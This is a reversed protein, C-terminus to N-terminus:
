SSRSLRGCYRAGVLWTLEGRRHLRGRGTRASPVPDRQDMVDRAVNAIAAGLCAVVVGLARTLAPASRSATACARSRVSNARSRAAANRSRSSVGNARASAAANRSRSCADRSVAGASSPPAAITSRASSIRLPHWQQDRRLPQPDLGPREPERAPPGQDRAPRERGTARGPLVRREAGSAPSRRFRGASRCACAPGPGQLGRDRSRGRGCFWPGGRRRGRRCRRSFSSFSLWRWAAPSARTCRATRCDAAM